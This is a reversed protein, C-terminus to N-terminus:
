DRKTREMEDIAEELERQYRRSQVKVYRMACEAVKLLPAQPRMGRRADREHALQDQTMHLQIRLNSTEDRYRKNEAEMERMAQAPVMDGIASPLTGFLSGPIKREREEAAKMAYRSVFRNQEGAIRKYEWFTEGDIM